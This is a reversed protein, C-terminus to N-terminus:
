NLTYIPQRKSREQRVELEQQEILRRLAHPDTNDLLDGFAEPLEDLFNGNDDNLLMEIQSQVHGVVSIDEVPSPYREFTTGRSHAVVRM